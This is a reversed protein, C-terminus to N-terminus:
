FYILYKAKIAGIRYVSHLDNGNEREHYDNLAVYFWSKPSFNWALLFGNRLSHLDTEGLDAGPTNMVFETFITLSTYANFRFELRPNIVPTMSVITNSPDWEIWLNSNLSAAMPPIISYRFSFWNSGQYAPFERWYNYSHSYHCGTNLHNGAVNGWFSIDISRYRYNMDAEWASGATLELNFGCHNRFQPNFIFFGFTSWREEGPEKVVTIGPAMYLSSLAGRAYQRYPGSFLTFRKRGAWPVFGIDSVDFSDQIVELAGQTLFNGTFGSYGATGAWGRMGERCSMASQLVVQNIGKRYVGDLGIAYNYDDGDAAAGSLLTGLDVGESLNHKLRMVGFGRPPEYISEEGTYDETRAGLLGFHWDKSKSTIKVGGIIPVADGDVSKGIRRSYFIDLPQFFGEYPGFDSLRFIDKGELFFPRREQLYIPYRSLNLQFPDSEIQAFDPNATANFTTQPTIDWKVNMSVNPKYEGANGSYRDYRVFTEPYVEFYYGTSGPSIGNLLSWRSILDGEKQTVETWYDTERNVATYRRLQLGWTSIGKRYRISKFPIKFEAEFRNDFVRLSRYWVGDWSNDWSRGDDLVMGDDYIGSGYVLFYYATNRSMFPDMGIFVHDEDATLCATPPNNRAYCRFAFYINGDDQLVYVVTKESPEEKEYPSHQIFGSTSDAAQWTDEIVGDIVPAVDSYRVEVSKDPMMMMLFLLFIM